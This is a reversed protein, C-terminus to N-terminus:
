TINHYHCFYWTIINYKHISCTETYTHTHTHQIIIIKKEGIRYKRMRCTYLNTIYYVNYVHVAISIESTKNEKKEGSTMKVRWNIIIIIITNYSIRTCLVYLYVSEVTHILRSGTKNGGRPCATRQTTYYYLVCKQKKVWVM